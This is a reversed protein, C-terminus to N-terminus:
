VLEDIRLTLNNEAATLSSGTATAGSLSPVSATYEGGSDEVSGSYQKGGVTTSYGTESMEESIAASGGGGGGGGSHASSTRAPAAQSASAASTASASSTTKASAPAASSATTSRGLLVPNLVQMTSSASSISALQM